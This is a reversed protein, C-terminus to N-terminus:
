GANFSALVVGRCINDCAEGIHEAQIEELCAWADRKHVDRSKVEGCGNPHIRIADKEDVAAVIASDYTDYDNNTCQSIKYLNM